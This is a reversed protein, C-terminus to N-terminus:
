DSGTHAHAHRKQSKVWPTKGAFLRRRGDHTGVKIERM